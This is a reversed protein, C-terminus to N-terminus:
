QSSLIIHMRIQTKMVYFKANDNYVTIYFRFLRAFIADIYYLICKCLSRLLKIIHTIRCSVSRPGTVALIFLLLIINLRASACTYKCSSLRRGDLNCYYYYFFQELFSTSQRGTFAFSGVRVSM